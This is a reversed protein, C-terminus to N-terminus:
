TEGERRVHSQKRREGLPFQGDESPGNLKNVKKLETSQLNSQIKLIRYRRILSYMGHMDKQTQTVESLIINELEM